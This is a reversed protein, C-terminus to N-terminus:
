APWASQNAPLYGGPDHPAVVDSDGVLDTFVVLNIGGARQTSPFLIGKVNASIVSDALVWSPPEIHANFLLKRWDCMFDEWLPEWGADRDYGKSFDVVLGLEVKYQVITGPQLLTSGQMYEALATAQDLALYLAPVGPRNARGGHSAAGEGSAPLWAWKPRHVRFADGSFPRLIM